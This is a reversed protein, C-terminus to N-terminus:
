LSPSLSGRAGTATALPRHLAARHSCTWARTASPGTSRDVKAIPAGGPGCGVLASCPGLAIVIRISTRSM